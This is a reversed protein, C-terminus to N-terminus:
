FARKNKKFQLRAKSFFCAPKKPFAPPSKLLLLRAKSYFCTFM